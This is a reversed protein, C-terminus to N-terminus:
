YPNYDLNVFNYSYIFSKFDVSMIFTQNKLKTQYKQWEFLKNTSM